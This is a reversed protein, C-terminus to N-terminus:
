GHPHERSMRDHRERMIEEREKFRAAFKARQEPTLVKSIDLMAQMVRKSAQDHQALTQQRLAEVAAADVTPAGFLQVARERLGRAAAHQAKLDSMAAQAIQKVQSRQADTANLGDLMHDVMRGAHEGPGDFMMMGAGHPGMGGHEQAHVSAAWGAAAVALVSVAMWRLSAQTGKRLTHVATQQTM